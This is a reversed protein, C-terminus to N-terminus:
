QNLEKVKDLCADIWAAAFEVGIQTDDVVMHDDDFKRLRFRREMEEFLKDQWDDPLLVAVPAPPSTYLPQEKTVNEGIWEKFDRTGRLTEVSHWHLGRRRLHGSHPDIAEVIYAVPQREIVPAALMARLEERAAVRREYDDQTVLDITLDAAMGRTIEIKGNM